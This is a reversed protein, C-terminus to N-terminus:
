SCSQVNRIDEDLDAEDDFRFLSIKNDALFDMFESETMGAIEACYGISVKENNYYYLAMIKRAIEQAEAGSQKTDYLVENPINISLQYM